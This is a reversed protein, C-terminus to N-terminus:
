DESSTEEEKSFPPLLGEAIAEHVCEKLCFAAQKAASREQIRALMRLRELYAAPLPVSLREDPMNLRAAVGSFITSM